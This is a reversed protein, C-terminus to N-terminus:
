RYVLTTVMEMYSGIDGISFVWSYAITYNIIEVLVLVDFWLIYYPDVVIQLVM